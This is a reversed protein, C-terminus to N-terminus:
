QHGLDRKVFPVEPPFDKEVPHEGDMWGDMWGDMGGDRLRHQYQPNGQGLHLVKCKAQNFKMLNVHVWEELRDLDRQIGGRGELTDVAGSLKIGDVFKSLTCRIGSDDRHHESM